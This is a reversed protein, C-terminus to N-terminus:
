TASDPRISVLQSHARHSQAIAIPQQSPPRHSELCERAFAPSDRGVTILTSPMLTVLEPHAKCPKAKSTNSGLASPRLRPSRECPRPHALATRDQSLHGSPSVAPVRLAAIRQWFLPSPTRKRAEWQYVVAKGAAGIMAAFQDPPALSPPWGRM